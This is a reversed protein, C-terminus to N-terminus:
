QESPPLHYRMNFTGDPNVLPNDPRNFQSAEMMLRRQAALKAELEALRQAQMIRHQQQPFVNFRLNPTAPQTNVSDNSMLKRLHAFIAPGYWGSLPGLVLM